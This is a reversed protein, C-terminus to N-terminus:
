SKRYQIPLIPTPKVFTRLEIFRMVAIWSAMAGLPFFFPHEFPTWLLFPVMLTSLLCSFFSNLMPLANPSSVPPYLTSLFTSCDFYFVSLAVLASLAAASRLISTVTEPSTAGVLRPAM